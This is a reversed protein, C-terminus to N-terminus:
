FAFTLIKNCICRKGVGSPHKQREQMEEKVKNKAADSRAAPKKQVGDEDDSADVLCLDPDEEDEEPDEEDDSEKSEEEEGEYEPVTPCTEIKESGDDDEDDDDDDDDSAGAAQGSCLWVVYHLQHEYCLHLM